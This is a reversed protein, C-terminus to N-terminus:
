EGAALPKAGADIKVIPLGLTALDPEIKASDGVIVTAMDTLDLREKAIANLAKEDMALLIADQEAGYAPDLDYSLINSLYGAKALPTEYSLAKRQLLASKTFALEEPTVGTAAYNGIEKFFETVSARTADTRVSASAVYAGAYEVGGFSSRAGYTYGKDERLNTNIRSNFNGGLAFNMITAHYFPGTADYPLARTAIRIESQAAEPKDLLYITQAQVDPFPAIAQRATDTSRWQTLPALRPRVANEDLNSVVVFEAESTKIQDVYFRQVDELSIAELTEITGRNDHAFANDAGYLLLRRANNALSGAEKKSQELSERIQSKVRAFDDADFKPTFLQEAAIAITEDLNDTLTRISLVTYDDGASVGSQSGLKQLRNSLDETSSTQTSENLMATTLRALGLKALPEDRQGVKMRVLVTTTPAEDNVAGIVAAGNELAGRWIAPPATTPAPGPSPPTSRDFDDEPVREQLDAETLLVGGADLDRAPRDWDDPVAAPLNAGKPLVSMVVAAKDKIHTRYARMVDAKTVNEYRAVDKAIMGPADFFTEYYALQRVKGSVSELGFIKSSVISAKVRTLDDDEVGREEFEAFTDIIVQNLDTLNAGKAPNPLAYVSFTCSLEQCGHGASAEVALGNKVLNKYLLSTEGAGIISMLVDLPAEDEHMVHVTPIARYLLPLSVDDEMSLHRDADLGTAPKEPKAVDPGRPISGFYKVVWQLTQDRDFDGGVTLVANNPGYWRLFFAKLDDVGVRDLDEVYGITQWSYPHGVPYLAEDVREVLLGYPRNEYRQARENKVTSRQVEFKKQTVAPLLFGMRDAELWLIRELQNNPATQYYNTRDTNTTGNLTGGGETILKFHEEDAVHQSGQFMMHEFFHAFGSRGIEERASGVHYTLDVHVLPDSHDEHLIVTLGNELQYKEFPIAIDGADMGSREVLTVGAPLTKNRDGGSCAALSALALGTVIFVRLSFFAARPM